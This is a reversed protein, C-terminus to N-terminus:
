TFFGLWSAVGLLLFFFGLVVVCLVLYAVRQFWLPRANHKETDFVSMLALGFFATLVVLVLFLVEM